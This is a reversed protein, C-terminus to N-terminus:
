KKNRDNKSDQQYGRARKDLKVKSVVFYIVVGALVTVSLGILVGGLIEQVNVPESGEATVDFSVSAGDCRNGAKDQVTITLTYNGVETLEKEFAYYGESASNKIQESKGTDNNTLTIQITKLLEERDKEKDGSTVNDLVEIKDIDITLLDGLKYTSNVFNKDLNVEPDKVDGNAITYELTRPDGVNQGGSDKVQISYRITYQGNRVLKLKIEGNDTTEFNTSDNAVAEEWEDFHITAINRTSDSTCTIQVYSEELNVEGNGQIDIDPKVITVKNPNSENITPYQTREYADGDISINVGIDGVTITQINSQLAFVDVLGDLLDSVVQELTEGESVQPTDGLGSLLTNMTAKYGNESEEFYIFYSTGSAGAEKYKLKGDQLFIGAEQSTAGDSLIDSLRYRMLFVNYQLKYTGKSYGTFWQQTLEYDNHSSEVMTTTYYTSTNSDDNVDLGIYGFSTSESVALTPPDLYYPTDVAAEIPTSSINSIEPDEVVGTGEVYYTFYTSVTHNSSDNVTVVVQYTGETSANFTGAKVKFVGRYTDISTSMNSSQMIQKSTVEGNDETSTSIRYVEVSAYMYEPRLDTFELTPLTITQPALYNQSEKLLEPANEVKTLVPADEDLTNAVTITRDYFAVNGFDDIAYAFIEIKETGSPADSLDIKYETENKDFYWGTSTVMGNGDKSAIYWKKEDNTNYKAESSIVYQLTKNTKDSELTSGNQDLFRYATVVDLRSDISDSATAVDFTITDSPLYSTQLDTSFNITPITTDSVETSLRSTYYVARETNNNMNDDAYYYFSYSTSSFNDYHGDTTEAKVYAFGKEIMATIADQDGVTESYGSDGDNLINAGTPDQNWYTTVLLYDNELLWNKVATADSPDEGDIVMQRYIEYNDSSIQTYIDDITADAKPSSPAFILNYANYKAETISFRVANADRIERRLEIKDSAVMNDKGAIAYMIINRTLGQTKIKYSADSYVGDEDVTYDGADYVYVNAQQTDKVNNITFTTNSTPVTNGYFDKVTYIFRYSGEEKATFTNDIKDYTDSTVDIDYKGNEENYKMVQLEYYINVKESAPSNTSKTTATISPLEVAVGVVASDPRTKSWSTTLSYGNENEESNTFYYEDEVTFTTSTSAIFVPSQSNERLEYYSYTIKFETGDEENLLSEGSIYYNGTNVDKELKVNFEGSDNDESGGTLSIYVFANKGGAVYSPRNSLSNVYNEKDEASLIVEGDEDNVNPLPVIIDKSNALAKDYVTPVINEENARFEFSADNAVCQVDFDYSYEIGNDVVTYRITYTGIREAVFSQSEFASQGSITEIVTDNTNKYLIEVKSSTITGSVTTGIIHESGANSYVGQPITYTNGKTVTKSYDNGEVAGDVSIRHTNTNADNGSWNAEALAVAANFPFFAGCLVFAFGLAAGKFIGKFKSKSKTM